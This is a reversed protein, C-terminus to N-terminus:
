TLLTPKTSWRLAGASGPQVNYIVVVKTLSPWHRREQMSRTTSVSRTRLLNAREIKRNEEKRKKSKKEDKKPSLIAKKALICSITDKKRLEERCRLLNARRRPDPKDGCLRDQPSSFRERTPVRPTM